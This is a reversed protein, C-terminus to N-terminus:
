EANHNPLNAASISLHFSTTPRGATSDSEAARRPKARAAKDKVSDVLWDPRAADASLRAYLRAEHSDNWVIVDYREPHKIVKHAATIDQRQRKQKPLREQRLRCAACIPFTFWRGAYDASALYAGARSLPVECIPCHSM